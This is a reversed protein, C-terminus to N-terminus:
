RKAILRLIEAAVHRGKFGFGGPHPDDLRSKLWQQARDPRAGAALLHRAVGMHGAHYAGVGALRELPTNGAKGAADVNIGADLLARVVEPCGAAIAAVLAATPEYARKPDAGAAILRRVADDACGAAAIDLPTAQELESLGNPSSRAELVRANVDAGHAVLTDLTALRVSDDQFVFPSGDVEPLWLRHVPTLGMTDRANVDAGSRLLEGVVAARGLQAAAHLDGRAAAREAATDAPPRQLEPGVIAPAGGGDPYNIAAEARGAATMGGPAFALLRPYRWCGLPAKITGFGTELVYLQMPRCWSRVTYEITVPGRDSRVAFTEQENNIADFLRVRTPFRARDRLWETRIKAGIQVPQQAGAFAGDSYLFTIPGEGWTDGNAYRGVLDVTVRDGRRVFSGTGPTEELVLLTGGPPAADWTPSPTVSQLCGALVFPLLLTLLRLRRM